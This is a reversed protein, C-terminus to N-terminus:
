KRPADSFVNMLQLLTGGISKLISGGEVFQADTCEGHLLEALLALRLKGCENLMGGVFLLKADREPKREPRFPLELGTASPVNRCSQELLSHTEERWRTIEPGEEDRKTWAKAVRRLCRLYDDQTFTTPGIRARITKDESESM